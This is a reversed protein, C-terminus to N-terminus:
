HENEIEYGAVKFSSEYDHNMNQYININLNLREGKDNSYYLFHTLGNGFYYTLQVAIYNAYVVEGNKIDAPEPSELKYLLKKNIDYDELLAIYKVKNM